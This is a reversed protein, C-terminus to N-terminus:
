ENRPTQRSPQISRKQRVSRRATKTIRAQSPRWCRASVGGLLGVGKGPAQRREQGTVRKEAPTM